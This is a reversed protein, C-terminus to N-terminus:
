KNFNELFFELDEPTGLGYMKKVKRIEIRKHDKIAENYVPCIYFENNVRLNKNIMSECYRVYDSGKKWYYIGVTANNSIPKKEAVETVIDNVVKAFSWKPHSSEFCLIGGDANSSLLSYMIESSNWEIYQDSNAILLMNENNIYEKALLSTCAAGETIQDVIVIKCGPCISELFYKLNYKTYHEKLVLFIYQAKINLNEIVLQIMPKQQVEILPKPFVYGKDQFRSGKGAMPILINLKNSHWRNDTLTYNLKSNNIKNISDIVYEFTLDKLYDLPLLNGGSQLASIKGHSSDEIILVEKPSLGLEIFCRLYIEPSPKPKKVQENSISFSLYEKIKLRDICFNLTKNISNTAIAIVLNNKKLNKFIKAINEDYKIYKDLFEETYKQKNLYIQDYFKSSLGKEKSLRILKERTPLGDYYLAHDKENITFKANINELAKNLANYHINKADVLVGDLDFIVAKIM